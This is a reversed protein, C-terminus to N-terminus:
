AGEAADLRLVIAATVAEFAEDGLRARLDDLQRSILEAHLPLGQARLAAAGTILTMAAEEPDEQQLQGNAVLTLMHTYGWPDGARAFAELADLAADVAAAGQRGFTQALAEAGGYAAVMAQHNVEQARAKNRAALRTAQEIEGARILQNTLALGIELVESTAGRGHALRSAERLADIAAQTAQAFIALVALGQLAAVKLAAADEAGLDERADAYLPAAEDLEGAELRLEAAALAFAGRLTFFLPDESGEVGLLRETSVAVDRLTERADGVALRRVQGRAVVVQALLARPLDGEAALADTAIQAWTVADAADGLTLHVEALGLSALGTSPFADLARATKLLDLAEGRFPPRRAAGELRLKLDPPVGLPGSDSM